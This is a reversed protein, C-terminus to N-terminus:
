KGRGRGRGGRASGGRKSGSAKGARPIGKMSGKSGMSGRKSGSPAARKGGRGSAGGRGGRKGGRASGGAKGGGGGGGGKSLKAVLSKHGQETAVQAPTMGEFSSDKIIKKDTAAGKSLLYDVMAGQNEKAAWHLATWGSKSQANVNGGKGVLFKLNDLKSM